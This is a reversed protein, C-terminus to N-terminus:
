GGIAASAEGGGEALVRGEGGGQQRVTFKQLVETLQVDKTDIHRMCMEMTAPAQQKWREVFNLAVDWAVPGEVRAHIDHWPERPAPFDTSYGACVCTLM